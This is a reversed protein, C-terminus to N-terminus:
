AETYKRLIKKAYSIDKDQGNKNGGLLLLIQHEPIHAYYLRRGNEWKLEWVGEDLNKCNGFHGEVEINFLRKEIQVQEKATQTSFWDRYEDTDIITYKM